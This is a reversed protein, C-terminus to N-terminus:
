KLVTSTSPLVVAADGALPVMGGKLVDQCVHGDAPSEATEKRASVAGFLLSRPPAQGTLIIPNIQALHLNQQPIKSKQLSM